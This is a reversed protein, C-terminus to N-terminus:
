VAFAKLAKELAEAKSRIDESAVPDEVHIQFRRITKLADRAKAVASWSQYPDSDIQAIGLFTHALKLDTTLFRVLAVQSKEREARIPVEMPNTPM